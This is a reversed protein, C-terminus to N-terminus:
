GWERRTGRVRCDGNPAKVPATHLRSCVAGTPTHLANCVRLRCRGARTARPTDGFSRPDDPARWPGATASLADIRIGVGVGIVARWQAQGGPGAGWNGSSLFRVRSCGAGRGTQGLARWRGEPHGPEDPHGVDAGRQWGGPPALRRARAAGCWRGDSGVGPVPERARGEVGVDASPDSAKPHPALGRQGVRTAAHARPPYQTRTSV